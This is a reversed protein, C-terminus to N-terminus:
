PPIPRASRPWTRARHWRAPPPWWGSMAAAPRRQPPSRARDSSASSRSPFTSACRPCRRPPPRTAPSSSCRRTRRSCGTSASWRSGASRTPPRPGYPTPRQRRPLRHVRRPAPAPDRVPRHSRRSRLRLRRDPPPRALGRRGDAPPWPWPRHAATRSSPPPSAASARRSRPTPSAAVFPVGENNAALVLRGDSVVEFDIHQGLVEEVEERSMGGSADARNLIVALKTPPYGIAAFAENAM